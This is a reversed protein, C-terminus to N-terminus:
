SIVDNIMLRMKDADFPKNMIANAGAAYAETSDRQDNQTTVMLIPLEDTGYWQRLQRIVDIGTLQPMNLDTCVLLPKEEKLWNLATEPNSFLVPDYGLETLVSRYVNLIMRSDDVACIKAMQGTDVEQVSRSVIKGALENHNDKRLLHLYFERIEPHVKVALYDLIIARFFDVDLLSLFIHESQSDVVAKIIRVSEGDQKKVMNKIGAALVADFNGDIAKTAAMRVNADPDTLGAALVYDGKLGPLRALAEYAAFRVNANRPCSNLLQRLPIVSTADGIDQLINLSHIQLDHDPIALNATVVALAKAGISVLKQKSYNRLHASSARLTDNLKHLSIDDQVAAFIDLILMDTEEDRGLREALYFMATPTAIRGLAEIAASILDVHDSYLYETVAKVAQHNGILGLANITEKLISTDTAATLVAALPEVAQELRLQGCLRIHYYQEPSSRRLEKIIIDPRNIARALIAEQLAPYDDANKQDHVALLVLLPLAFDDACKNLEYLIRRQEMSALRSFCGMVIKAKVLDQHRVDDLFEDLAHQYNTMTMTTIWGDSIKKGNM